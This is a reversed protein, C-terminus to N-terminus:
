FPITNNTNPEEGVYVELAFSLGTLVLLASAVLYGTKKM